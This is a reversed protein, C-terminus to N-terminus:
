KPRIHLLMEWAIFCEMLYPINGQQISGEEGHRTAKQRHWNKKRKM